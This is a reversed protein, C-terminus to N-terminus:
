KRTAATQGFLVKKAEDTMTAQPNVEQARAYARVTAPREAIAQFWRKLHPFDDLNQGQREHPVIWPYAAMDAISYDPGALYAVDALRRDMVGYLRGAEDTFRRISYPVREPAADRFHHAQGCIPGLNGMQFMLWEMVSYRADGGTPLFKGCKEALYVLIAM